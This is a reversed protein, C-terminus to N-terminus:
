PKLKVRKLKAADPHKALWAKSTAAARDVEATEKELAAIESFIRM